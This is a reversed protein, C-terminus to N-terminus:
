SLNEYVQGCPGPIFLPTGDDPGYILGTIVGAPCFQTQHAPLEDGVAAPATEIKCGLNGLFAVASSHYIAQVCNVSDFYCKNCCSAYSNGIPTSLDYLTSNIPGQNGGRSNIGFASNPM